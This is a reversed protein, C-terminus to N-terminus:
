VTSQKSNHLKPGVLGVGEGITQGLWNRLRENSSSHKEFQQVLGQLMSLVATPSDCLQLKATIPHALLRKRTMKEYAQLAANFVLQFNTTSSTTTPFIKSM